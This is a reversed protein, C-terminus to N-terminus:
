QKRIEGLIRDLEAVRSETADGICKARPTAWLQGTFGAARRKCEADRWELWQIESQRLKQLYEPEPATQRIHQRRRFARAISGSAVALRANSRRIGDTLCAAQSTTVPSMCPDSAHRPSISAPRRARAESPTPPPHSGRVTPLEASADKLAKSGASTSDTVVPPSSSDAASPQAAIGGSGASGGAGSMQVQALDRALATDGGTDPSRGGCGAAFLIMVVSTAIVRARIRVLNMPVDVTEPLLTGSGATAPVPHRIAGDCLSRVSEQEHRM